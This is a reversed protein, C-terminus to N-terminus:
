IQTNGPRPAATEPVPKGPGPESQGARRPDPACAYVIAGGLILTLTSALRAGGADSSTWLEIMGRARETGVFPTALGAVLPVLAVLRLTMPARSTAAVWLLLVGAAVRLVAIGYWHAPTTFHRAIWALTSPEVLGAAGVAVACLGILLALTKL